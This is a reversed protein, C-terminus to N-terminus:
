AALPAGTLREAFIEAFTAAYHWGDAFKKAFWKTVRGDAVRFTGGDDPEIIPCKFHHRLPHQGARLQGAAGPLRPRLHISNTTRRTKFTNGGWHGGTICRGYWYWGDLPHEFTVDFRTACYWNHKNQQTGFSRRELTALKRGHDDQVDLDGITWQEKGYNWPNRQRYQRQEPTIGAPMVDMIWESRVALYAWGTTPLTKM